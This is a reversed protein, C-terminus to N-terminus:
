AFFHPASPVYDPLDITPHTHYENGFGFSIPVLEPCIVRVVHLPAVDQTLEVIIPNYKDVINCKMDIDPLERKEGGQWLWEIYTKNMPDHYFNGHERPSEIEQAILNESDNRELAGVLLGEAEQYAKDLAEELSSDSAAAGCVFYPYDEQASRSIVIVIAVGDHSLDLVSTIRGLKEWYSNRKKFYEPFIDWSIQEPSQKSMWLRMIADRELLELLGRRVAEDKDFHAAVGSSDAESVLKRDINLPYYVVDIPVFVAQGDAKRAQLWEITKDVNFKEMYTKNAMQVDTLPRIRSPDLWPGPLQNASSTIDFRVDGSVYREYAEAIAKVRSLESSSAVGIAYDARKNTGIPMYEALTSYTYLGKLSIPRYDTVASKIPQSEGVLGELIRLPVSLDGSHSGVMDAYGLALTILPVETETLNLEDALKQDQFGGYELTSAGLEQAVLAINQAAHGAELLTFRYGRNAYKGGERKLDAAIVFVVPANKVIQEDNFIHRLSREDLEQTLQILSQDIHDYAYYGEPMGEDSRRVIAYIRLPYLGGASPIPRIDASYAADLCTMLIRADVPKDEFSRRSTRNRSLDLVASGLRDFHYKKGLRPEYPDNATYEILEAETMSRPFHPPNNTLQHFDLAQDRSDQLVGVKLLDEIIEAVLGSELGSEEVESLIDSLSNKGNALSLVHGIENAYLPIDLVEDLDHFSWAEGSRIGPKKYLPFSDEKSM